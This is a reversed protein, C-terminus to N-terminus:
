GNLTDLRREVDRVFREIFMLGRVHQAAAAFDHRDDILMQLQELSAQRQRLVDSALADVQSETDAVELSERWEMQQMLFDQPMATNDEARVACGHLECLTSARLIPDKLRRHAENVRLSWQLALRQSAAGESVFRDPHVEGQLARWRADLASVDLDFRRPVAFLTFDDDDLKM